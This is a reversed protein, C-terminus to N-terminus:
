VTPLGFVRKKQKRETMQSPTEIQADYGNQCPQGCDNPAKSHSQPKNSIACGTSTMGVVDSLQISQFFPNLPKNM